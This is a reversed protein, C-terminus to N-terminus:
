KIKCLPLKVRSVGDRDDRTDRTKANSFLNTHM